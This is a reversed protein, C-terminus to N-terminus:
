MVTAVPGGPSGADFTAFHVDEGTKRRRICLVVLLCLGCLCLLFLLLPILGLLGLLGLLGQRSSWDIRNGVCCKWVVNVIDCMRRVKKSKSGPCAPCTTTTAPSTLTNTCNSGAPLLGLCAANVFCANLEATTTANPCGVANGTSSGQRSSSTCVLCAACVPASAGSFVGVQGCATQFVTDCAACVSSFWYGAMRQVAAKASEFDTAQSLSSFPLCTVNLSSGNTSCTANTQSQVFFGSACPAAVGGPSVSGSTSACASSTTTGSGGVCTYTCNTSMMMPTPTMTGNTGNTGNSSM